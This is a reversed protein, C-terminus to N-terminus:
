TSGPARRRLCTSTTTGGGGGGGGLFAVAPRLPVGARVVVARACAALAVLLFAAALRAFAVLGGTLLVASRPFCPPRPEAPEFCAALRPPAPRRVEFGADASAAADGGVPDGEGPRLPSVARLTV